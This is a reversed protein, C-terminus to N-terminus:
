NLESAKPLTNVLGLREQIEQNLYGQLFPFDDWGLSVDLDVFAFLNAPQRHDPFFRFYLCSSKLKLGTAEYDKIRHIYKELEEIAKKGNESMEHM